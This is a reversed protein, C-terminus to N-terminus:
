MDCRVLNHDGTSDTRLAIGQAGRTVYAIRETRTSGETRELEVKLASGDRTLDKLAWKRGELTLGDDVIVVRTPSSAQGCAQPDVDYSAAIEALNTSVLRTPRVVVTESGETGDAPIITTGDAAEGIVTQQGQVGADSCAALALPITCAALIAFKRM